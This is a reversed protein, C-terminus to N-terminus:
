PKRQAIHGWESRGNTLRLLDELAQEFSDRWQGYQIDMYTRVARYLMALERERKAPTAFGESM